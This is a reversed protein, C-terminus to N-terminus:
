LIQSCIQPLILNIIKDIVTKNFISDSFGKQVYTIFIITILWRMGCKTKVLDIKLASKEKEKKEKEKEKERKKGYIM